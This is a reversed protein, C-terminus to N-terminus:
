IFMDECCCASAKNQGFICMKVLLEVTKLFAPIELIQAIESRTNTATLRGDDGREASLSSFFGDMTLIIMFSDRPLTQTDRSVWIM